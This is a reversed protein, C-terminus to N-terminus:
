GSTRRCACMQALAHCRLCVGWFTEKDPNYEATFAYELYKQPFAYSAQGACRCYGEAFGCASCVRLPRLREPCRRNAQLNAVLVRVPMEIRNERQYAFSYAIWGLVDSRGPLYIKGSRENEAIVRGLRLAVDSFVEARFLWSAVQEAIVLDPSMDAKGEDIAAVGPLIFRYRFDGDFSWDILNLERLARLDRRLQSLSIGLCAAMEAERGRRVGLQIEARRALAQLRLYTVIAGAPLRFNFLLQDPISTIGGNPPTAPIDNAQSLMAIEGNQIRFDGQLLELFTNYNSCINKDIPLDRKRLRM